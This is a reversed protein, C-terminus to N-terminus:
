VKKRGEGIKKSAPPPGRDEHNLGKSTSVKLHAYATHQPKHSADPHAPQRKHMGDHAGM